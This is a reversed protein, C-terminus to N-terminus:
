QAADDHGHDQACRGCMSAIDIDGLAPDIPAIGAPLPDQLMERSAAGAPNPGVNLMLLAYGDQWGVPFITRELQSRRYDADIEYLQRATAATAMVDLPERSHELGLLHGLEHAAVNAIALATAEASAQLSEFMRFDETYIIAEQDAFQNGTDVSDALGLFAPNYNGFYLKTYSGFPRAENRGDILVVNFPALDHRLRSVIQDAMASTQGAFRTSIAEASFPRMDEFPELAIQVRDGGAFNLYVLQRTAARVPMGPRRTLKITYTGSDYTGASSAFHTATSVAIAVYLNDTDRRLVHSIYPNLNGAYYSRDNNADILDANADFLGAVTNLGNHGIADILVQDGAIAPGLAYIDVDGPGDIAGSIEFSGDVPLTAPQADEFADNFWAEEHVLDQVPPLDRSSPDPRRAAQDPSTLSITDCGILLILYWACCFLPLWRAAGSTRRTCM